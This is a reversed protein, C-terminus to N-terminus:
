PDIATISYVVCFAYTVVPGAVTLALNTTLFVYTLPPYPGTALVTWGYAVTPNVAWTPDQEIPDLCGAAETAATQAQPAAQSTPVLLLLCLAGLLMAIPKNM